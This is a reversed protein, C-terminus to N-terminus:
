CRAFYLDGDDAMGVDALRRQQILERSGRARDDRRDGAGSAIRDVLDDLAVPLTKAKDVRRANAALALRVQHGLLKGDDHRALMEFVGVDRQEHDVRGFADAREVGGDGAVRM